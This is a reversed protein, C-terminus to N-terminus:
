VAQSLKFAFFALGLLGIVLGIIATSRGTVQTQGDIAHSRTLGLASFVIALVSLIAFPNFLASLLSLVCGTYAFSNNRRIQRDREARTLKLEFGGAGGQGQINPTNVSGGVLSPRSSSSLTTTQMETPAIPKRLESWASGDWWRLQDVAGPDLLWGAEPNNM